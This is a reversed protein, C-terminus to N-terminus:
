NRVLLIRTETGFGLFKLVFNYQSIKKILTQLDYILSTTKLM